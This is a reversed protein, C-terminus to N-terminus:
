KKHGGILTMQVHGVLVIQQTRRDLEFTDARLTGSPGHGTVETNGHMTGQHLDVDARATHMEYGDDSYVAIGDSLKLTGKEMDIYGTVATANLWRNKEMTLDAQVNKLTARKVNAADQVAMDATIVFPNGKSDSGSLRPKIMALDNAITGVSEATLKFGHDSQRPVLSYAIIALILAAAAIPLARKMVTVFRSYRLANLATDRTRATWDRGTRRAAGGGQPLLEGVAKPAGPQSM